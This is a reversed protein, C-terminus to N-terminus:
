KLLKSEVKHKLFIITLIETPIDAFYCRLFNLQSKIFVLSSLAEYITTM